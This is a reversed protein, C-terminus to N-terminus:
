IVQTIVQFFVCLIYIKGITHKHKCKQKKNLPRQQIGDYSVEILGAQVKLAVAGEPKSYSHFMCQMPTNIRKMIYLDGRKPYLYFRTEKCKFISKNVNTGAFTISRHFSVGSDTNVFLTDM